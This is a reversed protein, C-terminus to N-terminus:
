KPSAVEKLTCAIWIRRSAVLARTASVDIGNRAVAGGCVEHVEHWQICMAHWDVHDRERRPVSHIRLEIVRQARGAESEVLGGAQSCRGRNMAICVSENPAEPARTM